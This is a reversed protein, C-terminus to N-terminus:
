VSEASQASSRQDMFSSAREASSHLLTVGPLSGPDLLMILCNEVSVSGGADRLLSLAERRTNGEQEAREQAAEFLQGTDDLTLEITVCYGISMFEGPRTAGRCLPCECQQGGSDRRFEGKAVPLGIL